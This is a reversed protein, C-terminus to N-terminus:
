DSIANNDEEIWSNVISIAHMLGASHADLLNASREDSVDAARDITDMEMELYSALARLQGNRWHAVENTLRVKAREDEVSKEKWRYAAAKWDQIASETMGVTSKYMQERQTMGDLEVEYKLLTAELGQIIDAMVAMAENTAVNWGARDAIHKELQSHKNFMFVYSNYWQGVSQNLRTVEKELGEAKERMADLKGKTEMRGEQIVQYSVTAVSLDDELEDVLAKLKDREQIAQSCKDKLEDRERRRDAALATMVKNNAHAQALQGGLDEKIEEIRGDKDSLKEEQEHVVETLRKVKDIYSKNLGQEVGLHFKTNDLEKQLRQVEADLRSLENGGVTNM